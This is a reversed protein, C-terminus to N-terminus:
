PISIRRGRYEPLALRERNVQDFWKDLDDIMRKLRDPQDAALNRSEAPDEAINYLEPQGPASLTREVPDLDLPREFHPRRFLEQYCANDATLKRRAEPIFPWFLKWDGDRMAANCHPVPEYRNFQWFRRQLVATREGRLAALANVGDLAAAEEVGVGCAAALTPLWDCFHMMEAVERGAPLGDAWRVLAPVRIGGELVDQKMGRFPGNFRSCDYGDARGLWPGNDSTFL